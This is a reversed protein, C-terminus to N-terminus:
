SGPSVSNYRINSGCITALGNMLHIEAAKTMTGVREHDLYDDELGVRRVQMTGRGEAVTARVPAM